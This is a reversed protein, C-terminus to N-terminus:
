RAKERPAFRRVVAPKSLDRLADKGVWREVALESVSLRQALAVAPAHLAASRRGVSRLAWSVAKKVFNREDGSPIAYRAMGDRTHLSALRQLSSIVDDVDNEQPRQARRTPIPPM